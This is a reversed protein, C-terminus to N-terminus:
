CFLAASAAPWVSGTNDGVAHAATVHPPARSSSAQKGGPIISIGVEADETSREGLQAVSADTLRERHALRKLAHATVHSVTGCASRHLQVRYHQAEGCRGARARTHKDTNATHTRACWCHTSHSSRLTSGKLSMAHVAFARFAHAQRQEATAVWRNKLGIDGEGVSGTRQGLVQAPLSGFRFAM